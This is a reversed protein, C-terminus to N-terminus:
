FLFITLKKNPLVDIFNYCCFSSRLLDTANKSCKEPDNSPAELTEVPVKVQGPAQIKEIFKTDLSLNQQSWMVDFEGEKGTDQRKLELVQTPRNL